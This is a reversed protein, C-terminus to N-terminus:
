TDFFQTIHRAFTRMLINILIYGNSIIYSRHWHDTLLDSAFPGAISSETIIRIETRHVFALSILFSCGRQGDGSLVM